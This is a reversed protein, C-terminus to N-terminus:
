ENGVLEKILKHFYEMLYDADTGLIELIANVKKDSYGHKHIPRILTDYLESVIVRNKSADLITRAKELDEFSDPDYNLVVKM